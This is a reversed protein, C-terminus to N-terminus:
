GAIVPHKVQQGTVQKTERDVVQRVLTPVDLILAVDGNGLITSGSIGSLREFLKGLPKIVTQFEGLLADVVLGVRRGAYNIVVINERRSDDYKVEFVSRLRLLPLVEDRLNIYSHTKIIKRDAASLELCEVVMDLPVVYSAAGVNVLFGDIIALTLPLRVTFTTGVDKKSDIYISGRLSEVNRKVVDMGVGRGSVNSVTESTSFGPEMILKYIEHDTLEQEDSVLGKDLAKALIKDRDLGAGDDAVEIVVSGSDHFANLHIQGTENKGRIHRDDVSEIGHDLANRVLHMLPDSIKDVMSKDVETDSGSIILEVQKNLDRAVDRVVRNFRNFTDGVPVMRLRLAGERMQEVLEEINLSAEALESDGSNQALLRAGSAAIVLEGVQTVLEDIKDARVRMLTNEVVHHEKIIQQKKLAADVLESQVVGQGILIEGLKLTREANGSHGSLDDIEKQLKLGEELENKTLSNSNVLLEGLQMNAEPLEEILKIYDLIKSHPLLIRIACEDRVFDFIGEITKKDAASNFDIEVGLYCSEPDMEKADPIGDCLTVIHVIQGMTEMYRIFSLPDMGNRLVDLGFRVSIHWADNAVNSGPIVEVNSEDTEALEPLKTLSDDVYLKLRELLATNTTQASASIIQSDNVTEDVLVSVHDGCLLLLAIIDSDIAIEGSRIEELLSEMIHTFAVIDNFGFVGSSGKITHASRFVSTIAEEDDPHQELKLLAGEMEALLDKCEAIFTHHAPQLDM